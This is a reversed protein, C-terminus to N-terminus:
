PKLYPVMWIIYHDLATNTHVEAKHVLYIKTSTAYIIGIKVPISAPSSYRSNKTTTGASVGAISYKLIDGASDLFVVNTGDSWGPDATSGYTIASVFTITTGSVSYKNFQGTTSDAFYLNTGDSFASARIATNVVNTGSVTIATENILDAADFRRVETNGSANGRYNIYVYSGQATVSIKEANSVANTINVSHTRFYNGSADTALRHIKGTTGTLTVTFVPSSMNYTSAMGIPLDGTPTPSSDIAQQFIFTVDTTAVVNTTTGSDNYTGSSNGSFEPVDITNSDDTSAAINIGYGGNSKYIGRMINRDDTGTLKLGDSANGIFLGDITNDDCGSVMEMGQGGNGSAECIFNVQDMDTCNFGDSTAAVASLLAAITKINNFVFNHGGNTTSNVSRWECQGCNTMEFGNSTNAGALTRQLNLRSVNTFVFGKNNLVSLVNDFTIQLADTFVIGTGTSSQVSFNSLKVDIIPTTIRYIAGPMTVDDTYGEALILTTDSTVAAIKYHRTGIFLYQGARAKTLWATGSGTVAVGGIISTITGTTYVETGTFSLNAPGEFAIVTASPSVGQLSVSSYGVLSTKQTYTGTKLLVTGGGSTYVANIVAQLDDGPAVMKSIGSLTLNKLTLNGAASIQQSAVADGIGDYVVPTGTDEGPINLSSDFGFDNINM